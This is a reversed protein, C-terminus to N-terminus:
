CSRELLLDKAVEDLDQGCSPCETILSLLVIREKEEVELMNDTNEICTNVSSIYVILEELDDCETTLFNYDVVLADKREFIDESIDIQIEDISELGGVIKTLDDVIHRLSVNSAQLSSCESCKKELLPLDIKSVIDFEEEVRSLSNILSSLDQIELSLVSDKQQLREYAKLNKEIIDLDIELLLSLSTKESKLSTEKGSILGTKTRIKGSLLSVIEDIEDFKAINRIYQSIQGPSDLVLFYPSLQDQINVDTLNFLESIKDPVSAGFAKFEAEEVGVAVEYTNKKEGKTRTVSFVQNNAKGIVSVCAVEAGHRVFRDGSPRNNVVLNLARFLATKGSQSMGCIVNVGPVFEIETSKHSQFDDVILSLLSDM